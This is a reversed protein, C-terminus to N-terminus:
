GHLRRDPSAHRWDRRRGGDGASAIKPVSVFHWDGIWRL